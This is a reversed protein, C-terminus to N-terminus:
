PGCMEILMTELVAQAPRRSSKLSIDAEALL